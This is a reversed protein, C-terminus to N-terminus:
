RASEGVATAGRAPAARRALDALAGLWRDRRIAAVPRLPAGDARGADRDVVVLTRGDIARRRSSYKQLGRVRPELGFRHALVGAVTQDHRHGRVRPDASALGGRNWKLAHREDATPLPRRTGRFAVGDVAAALWDDLFARGVPHRLDLGLAAADVEPLALASERDLALAALAEDSAWEGLRHAGNRFVIAGRAAVAAFLPSPDRVVVCASDLWLTPGCGAALADRFCFPKFAFPVEEHPPCGAPFSGPERLLARGRFGAIALSERLRALAEPYRRRGTALSLVTADSV